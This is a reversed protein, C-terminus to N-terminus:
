PGSETEAPAPTPALWGVVLDAPGGTLLLLHRDDCAVLLLRRRPDLALSEAIRPRRGPVGGGLRTGRLARGVLVALALVALLAAVIGPLSASLSFM